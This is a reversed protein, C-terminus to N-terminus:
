VTFAVRIVLLGGSGTDVCGQPYKFWACGARGQNGSRTLFKDVVGREAGQFGTFLIDVIM